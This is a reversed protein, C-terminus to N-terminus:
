ISVWRLEETNRVESQTVTLDMNDSQEIGTAVRNKSEELSDKMDGDATMTAMNEINLITKAATAPDRTQILNDENDDLAETVPVTSNVSMKDSLSAEMSGKANILNQAEAHIVEFVHTRMEVTDKTLEIQETNSLTSLEEDDTETLNEGSEDVLTEKLHRSTPISPFTDNHVKSFADNHLRLFTDKPHKKFNIDDDMTRPILCDNNILQELKPNQDCNRWNKNYRANPSM